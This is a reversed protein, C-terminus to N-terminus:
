CKDAVALVGKVPIRHGAKASLLPSLVCCPGSGSLNVMGPVPSHVLHGGCAGESRLEVSWLSGCWVYTLLM